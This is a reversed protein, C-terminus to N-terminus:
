IKKLVETLKGPTVNAAVIIGRDDILFNKFGGKRHYKKYLASEKGLEERLQTTGTLNDIKVTETFVSEKEDLSFSYMAVKESGLKNVENALQVNRARSEADYAAWFNVLTYRGSYNQFSFMQKNGLSEIRPALDGPNVGESPSASKVGFSMGLFAILAALVYTRVKM